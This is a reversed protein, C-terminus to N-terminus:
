LRQAAGRDRVIGRYVRTRVPLVPVCFSLNSGIALHRRCEHREQDERHVRGASATVDCCGIAFMGQADDAKLETMFTRWLNVGLLFTTNCMRVDATLIASIM